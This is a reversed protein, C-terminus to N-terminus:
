FPIADDPRERMVRRYQKKWARRSLPAHRSRIATILSTALAVISALEAIRIETSTKPNRMRYAYRFPLFVFWLFIAYATVLAVLIMGLILVVNKADEIYDSKHKM